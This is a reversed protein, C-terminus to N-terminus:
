KGAPVISYSRMHPGGPTQVCGQIANDAIFQEALWLKGHNGWDPGWSNVMMFAQKPKDYGIICIAHYGLLRSDSTQRTYVFDEPVATKPFDAFIPIGIVIPSKTDYLWRRMKEPDAPDGFRAGKFLV